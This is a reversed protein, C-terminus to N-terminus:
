NEGWGEMIYGTTKDTVNHLTNTQKILLKATCSNNKNAAIFKIIFKFGIFKIELKIELKIEAAYQNNKVSCKITKDFVNTIDWGVKVRVKYLTGIFKM